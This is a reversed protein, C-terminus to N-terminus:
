TIRLVALLQFLIGNVISLAIAGFLASWFGNRLRFGDVLWATISFIIANLVFVFLGLTIITFPITLWFLVPKIFANLIGFIVGAVIAKWPDDVEVGLLPIKSILLLSVAVVLATILFGVM